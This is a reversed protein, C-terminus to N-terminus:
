SIYKNVTSPSVNLAEAIESTTKGAEHMSLMRNIKATSMTTTAKPTAYQRVVDIDTRNLIRLLQDDSIAGAQIAEWEKPSITINYRQAGISLRSSNLTQAGIKKKDKSSMKEGTAEKYEAAKQKVVANAQLQAYREKPANKEAVNLQSKLHAVEKSYIKAASSSYELRPTNVMEKRAANALSKMKNAYNAYAEEKRTGSSLEHADRVLDMRPVDITRLQVKGNKDVYEERVTKTEYEGTKPNIREWELEGTEKNIWAEGKRKLITKPNKARTILTAAGAREKGTESDVYGQYKKRLDAIGNELESAKWDLKHKPADIVVMSHKVARTIEENSAGKLNMDAILNTITGMQTGKMPGDKMISYEKGNRYYHKKGDSDVRVDDSGYEVVDDFGKLGELQPANQITIKSSPSNCPIVMVTDGDFDAGSLIQAVNSNIGVADCNGEGIGIVRRGEVNKNTVTLIPIEFLGAHPYRVLAVKEGDKFNPAYIENDKLSTIPLMVQFKQGPLAAAKLDRAAGDCDNAFTKLLVRKITPNTLSCIEDFEAQKDDESIKLQRRILKLPQKSLFQSALTDKWEEWDGQDARKNILSLKKEGNKDYYYSQGGNEKIASGFPNTKDIEGNPTRKVDKFVNEPLVDNHKKTNFIVDIGDPMNKFDGYMAMGKLYKSDDVLIRVQAYNKGSGLSLDAVGPRLEIVGEKDAGGEEAYKIYIRSSDLSAPYVFGKRSTDGVEVGNLTYDVATNIKDYNYIEKHETGPPCLVKLITSQDPNAVQPARGGYVHYGEAELIALAQNLKEASIGLEKEVGVGVDIMGVEDIRKKLKDAYMQAETARITTRSNLLNRVSSDNPYGMREAIAKLSLGEEDRLRHAEKSLEADHEAKAISYYARFETSSLEFKDCIEKETKGAKKMEKVDTFWDYSRQYPDQGSGWPYRGSHGGDLHGKGYHILCNIDPKEYFALDM